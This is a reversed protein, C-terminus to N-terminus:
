AGPRPFTRDPGGRPPPTIAGPPAPPPDADAPPGTDLLVVLAGTMLLSLGIGRRLTMPRPAAGLWGYHDIVASNPVQFALLLMPLLTVGIQAAVAPTLGARLGSAEPPPRRGATNRKLISTRDDAHVPTLSSRSRAPAGARTGPANQQFAGRNRDSPGQLNHAGKRDNINSSPPLGADRASEKRPIRPTSFLQNPACRQVRKGRWKRALM